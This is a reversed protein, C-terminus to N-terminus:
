NGASSLFLSALIIWHKIIINWPLSVVQVSLPWMAPAVGVLFRKSKPRSKALSLPQLYGLNSIAM